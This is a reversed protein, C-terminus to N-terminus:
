SVNLRLSLGYLSELHRQFIASIFAIFDEFEPVCEEITELKACAGNRM